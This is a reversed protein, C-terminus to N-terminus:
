PAVVCASCLDPEAWDCGEDCAWDDSCGCVRCAVAGSLQGYLRRAAAEQDLTPGYDTEGEVLQVSEIVGAACLAALDAQIDDRSGGDGGTLEYLDEAALQGIDWVLRLVEGRAPNPAAATM